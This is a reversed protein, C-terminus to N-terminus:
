IFNMIQSARIKILNVSVIPLPCAVPWPIDSAKTLEPYIYIDDNIFKCFGNPPLKYPLKRYEGGQKMFAEFSVMYSDDAAVNQILQGYIARSTRNVRKVRM